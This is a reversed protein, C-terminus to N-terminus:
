PDIRSNVRERRGRTGQRRVDDTLFVVVHGSAHLLYQLAVFIQLVNDRNEPHIFEGRFVFHRYETRALDLAEQALRETHRLHKSAALALLYRHRFCDAAELLYQVSFVIVHRLAAEVHLTRDSFDSLISVRALVLSM